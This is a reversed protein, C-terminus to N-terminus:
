PIGSGSTSGDESRPGSSISRTTIGSTPKSGAPLRSPMPAPQYSRLKANRRVRGPGGHSTPAAKERCCTAASARCSQSTGSSATQVSSSVWMGSPFSHVFGLSVPQHLGFGLVEGDVVQFPDAGFGPGAHAVVLRAVEHAVAHLDPVLHEEVVGVGLHRADVADGLYGARRI